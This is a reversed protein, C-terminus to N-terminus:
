RALGAQSALRGFLGALRGYLEGQLAGVGAYAEVLEPDPETVDGLRAMGRACAAVEADTASGSASTVAAMALAAAGLASAEDDCAVLPVGICATMIARWLPSRQGGGMVRISALPTGTDAELARLNRATELSVGELISRYLHARGHTGALGVFAGRAQPDWHPSQAANWYPLTLLGDCGAPVSAAAAELAPDPAGKLAPDGLESRFWGALYAGSNQVVELVYQGPLGAADTRYVRGHRYTASHVGAVVATGMNLYAEDPRTAGAGLGAAQGDGCGAVLPIPGPLGWGHAVERTVDAMVSGADVLGPLQDRRVGGADLLEDCFDLAAMDFLGMSDATARSDLWAGTFAHALYAHVGAVRDAGALTDPEHEALWAVKYLSPTVDPVMGSLAHVRESGLRAVQETARSDLWLIAPRRPTGDAGCLVFTQRPPTVCVAAVRRRGADDLAAVAEAIARHTATVWDRADQEYHGLAPTSMAYDCRARAVVTGDAAVVLAKTGTTSADVAIVLPGTM